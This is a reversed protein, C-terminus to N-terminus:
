KAEELERILAKIEEAKPYDPALKLTLQLENLAKERAGSKHYALGLHYRVEPIVQPELTAQLASQFTEVAKKFNKRQYYVWGLTDLLAGSKPALGVAKAAALAEDLGQEKEALLIALENYPVPSEPLLRIIKRYTEEAKPSDKTLQYLAGLRLLAQAHKSDLEIVKNYAQIAAPYAKRSTHVEGLAFYAPAYRPALESLKVLAAQADDFKLKRAFANSGIYLAVINSPAEKLADQYAQIARDQIGEGQFLAALNVLAPSKASVTQYFQKLDLTEIQSNVLFGGARTIQRKAETWNKESLRVNALYFRVRDQAAQDPDALAQEFRRVAAPYNGSLHDIVGLAVVPGYQRVDARSASEFAQRADELKDQALGCVGLLYFAAASDPKLALLQLLQDTAATFDNLQAYARSLTFLASLSNTQTQLVGKAEAIAEDQRNADLLASALLERAAPAQPNLTLIERYTQIAAASMRLRTLVAASAMRPRLDTPALDKAKQFSQFAEELKGQGQQALGLITQGHALRPEITLAELAHWAAQSYNKEDYRITALTLHALPHRPDEKIAAQCANTAAAIRGERRALMAQVNLAHLKIRPEAAAEGQQISNTAQDFQQVMAHAVGKLGYVPAKANTALLAQSGQLVRLVLGRRLDAALQEEPALPQAAADAATATPVFGGACVVLLQVLV